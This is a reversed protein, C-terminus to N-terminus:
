QLNIKLSFVLYVGYIFILFINSNFFYIFNRLCFILRHERLGNSILLTRRSLRVEVICSQWTVIGELGHVLGSDTSLALLSAIHLRSGLRRVLVLRTFTQFGCHWATSIM